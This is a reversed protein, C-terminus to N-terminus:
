EGKSNAFTQICLAPSACNTGWGWGLDTGSSLLGSVFKTASHWCGAQAQSGRFFGCIKTVFSYGPVPHSGLPVGTPDWLHIIAETCLSPFPPVEEWCKQCSCHSIVRQKRFFSRSCASLSDLPFVLSFGVVIMSFLEWHCKKIPPLPFLSFKVKTGQSPFAEEFDALIQQGLENQAAKVRPPVCSPSQHSRLVERCVDSCPPQFVLVQMVTQFPDFPHQLSFMWMLFTQAHFNPSFQSCFSRQERFSLEACCQGRLQLLVHGPNEQWKINWYPGTLWSKSFGKVGTDDVKLNM